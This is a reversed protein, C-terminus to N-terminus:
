LTSLFAEYAAEDMFSNLADSEAPRIRFFWGAGMPEKNVLEPEDALQENVSVVEGSLPSKVEGAAKVSEVVAVENGAIINSGPEPLEVYVVDGLQEQAYDSIGITVNGDEELRLWEHDETYKVDSM